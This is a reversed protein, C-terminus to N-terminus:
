KTRAKIRVPEGIVAGTPGRETYLIADGNKYFWLIWRPKDGAPEIYGLCPNSDKGNTEGRPGGYEGVLVGQKGKGIQM